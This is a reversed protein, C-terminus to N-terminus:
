KKEEETQCLPLVPKLGRTRRRDGGGERERQGGRERRVRTKRQFRFMRRRKEEGRMEYTEGRVDM